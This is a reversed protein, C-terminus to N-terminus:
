RTVFTPIKVEASRPFNCDANVTCWLDNPAAAVSLGFLGLGIVVAALAVTTYRSM